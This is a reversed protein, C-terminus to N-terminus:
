ISIFASGWTTSVSQQWCTVRYKCQTRTLRQAGSAPIPRPWSHSAGCRPSGGTCNGTISPRTVTCSASRGGPPCGPPSAPSPAPARGWGDERVTRLLWGRIRQDEELTCDDCLWDDESSSSNVITSPQENIKEEKWMRRGKLIYQPLTPPNHVLLFATKIGTVLLRHSDFWLDSNRALAHRMNERVGKWWYLRTEFQEFALKYHCPVGQNLEAGLWGAMSQDSRLAICIIDRRNLMNQFHSISRENM